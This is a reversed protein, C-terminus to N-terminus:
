PDTGQDSRTIGLQDQSNNDPSHEKHETPGSAKLSVIAFHHTSKTRVRCLVQFQENFAHKLPHEIAHQHVFNHANRSLNSNKILKAHEKQVIYEGFNAM